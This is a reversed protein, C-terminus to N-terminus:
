NFLTENFNQRAHPLLFSVKGVDAHERVDEPLETTSVTAEDPVSDNNGEEAALDDDIAGEGGEERPSAIAEIFKFSLDGM